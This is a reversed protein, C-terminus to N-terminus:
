QCRAQFFSSRMPQRKSIRLVRKAATLHIRYHKVSYRSLAAVAFVIDPVTGIAVYMLSGVISQYDAPDVEEDADSTDIDLRNKPHLLTPAPNADQMSFRALITSIYGPQSLTITRDALREIEQHWLIPAQRLAYLAKNLRLFCNRNGSPITTSELWDIGEPLQMYVEADIEPNLFATVVDLHDIKYNNQVVFSLLYWLTILKSVPAYTEDFDVGRIHEYGKIVVRVKYRTTGNPNRKTKYVWRCGIPKMGNTDTVPTFTSNEILSAYEQRM